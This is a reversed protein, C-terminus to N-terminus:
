RSTTRSLWRDLMRQAVDEYREIAVIIREPQLPSDRNGLVIDILAAVFRDLVALSADALATAAARANADGKLALYAEDLHSLGFLVEAVDPFEAGIDRLEEALEDRLDDDIPDFTEDSTAIQRLKLGLKGVTRALRVFAAIVPKWMAFWAASEPRSMTVERVRDALAAARQVVGFADSSPTDSLKETPDEM